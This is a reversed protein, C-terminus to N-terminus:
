FCNIILLLLTVLLVSSYGINVAGSVSSPSPTAGVLNASSSSLVMINRSSSSQVMINRSSSSRVMMSSSTTMMPVSDVSSTIIDINSHSSSGTPNIIPTQSISGETTGTPIPANLGPVVAPLVLTSPDDPGFCFSSNPFLTCNLHEPWPRNNQVFYMFCDDFVQQCLSQCPNLRYLMGGVDYCPPAYYSCFFSLSAGSCNGEILVRFDNLQGAADVQNEIGNGTPYDTANYQITYCMPIVTYDILQCSDAVPPTLTSDVSLGYTLLFVAFCLLKTNM